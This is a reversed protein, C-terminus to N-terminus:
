TNVHSIATVHDFGFERMENEFERQVYGLSRKLSAVTADETFRDGFSDVQEFVQLLITSTTQLSSSTNTFTVKLSHIREEVCRSKCFMWLPM